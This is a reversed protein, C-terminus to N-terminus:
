AIRTTVYGGRDSLTRTVVKMGTRKRFGSLSAAPKTKGPWEERAYILSEGVELTALKALIPNRFTGKNPSLFELGDLNKIVKM